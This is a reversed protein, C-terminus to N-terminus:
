SYGLVNRQRFDLVVSRTNDIEIQKGSLTIVLHGNAFGYEFNRLAMRQEFLPRFEVHKAQLIMENPYSLPTFELEINGDTMSMNCYFFMVGIQLTNQIIEKCRLIILSGWSTDLLIELAGDKEHMGWVYGDHFAGHNLELGDLDAESKIATFEAFASQGLIRKAEELMQPSYRKRKVTTFINRDDWYSKFAPENICFDDANYDTFLLSYRDKFIDVVILQTFSRDFVVAKNRYNMQSVAFVPSYYVGDKHKIKAQM